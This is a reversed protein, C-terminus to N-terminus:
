EIRQGYTEPLVWACIISIVFGILLVLLGHQYDAVSYIAAGNQMQGHWSVQMLWGTLPQLIGPLGMIIVSVFGLASGVLITRNSEQTVPYGIVQSSTFFGLAFFLSIYAFYSFHPGYMILAFIFLSIVATTLMPIRRSGLYDSLFGFLPCGVITGVFIMMSITSAQLADFGYAQQMYQTGFLGALIMIPLNMCCIYMGVLWNNKNKALICLSSWFPIKTQGVDTQLAAYRKNEPADRVLVLMVILLAGGFWAIDRLAERWGQLQILM